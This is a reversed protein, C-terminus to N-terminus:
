DGSKQLDKIEEKLEQNEKQLEQNQQALIVILNDRKSIIDALYKEQVIEDLNLNIQQKNDM